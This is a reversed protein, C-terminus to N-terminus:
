LAIFFRNFESNSTIPDIKSLVLPIDKICDTLKKSKSEEMSVCLKMGADTLGLQDQYYVVCGGQILMVLGNMIITLLGGDLQGFIAALENVDNTKLAKRRADSQMLLNTVGVALPLKTCGQKVVQAMTCGVIAENNIRYDMRTRPIKVDLGTAM